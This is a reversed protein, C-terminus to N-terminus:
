VNVTALLKSFNTPDIGLYSALHKHPVMGLLHPSRKVFARFREEISFAMLEYHRHIFGALWQETAIRFLREIERHEDMLQDIRERSARIMKSPTIAELFYLSPTQTMFSEPIGSFSPPYTFAIVHEKGEKVYYSRQVGELVFYLHRQVQGERTIIEKRQFSVPEFADLLLQTLEDNLPQIRQIFNAVGPADSNTERTKEM